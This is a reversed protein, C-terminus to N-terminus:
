KCLHCGTAMKEAGARVPPKPVITGLNAMVGEWGHACPRSTTISLKVGIPTMQMWMRVPTISSKM